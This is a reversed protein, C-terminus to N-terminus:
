ADAPRHEKDGAARERQACLREAARALIDLAEAVVERERPDLQALLALLTERNALTLRERLALGAPTPRLWVIRRDAADEERCVYGREVLHDVLKSVAPQGVGLARALARGHIPARASIVMLAKVQPMSLDVGLWAPHLRGGLAAMLRQFASALQDLTDPTAQAM